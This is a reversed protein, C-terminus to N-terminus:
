TKQIIIEEPKHTLMTISGKYIFKCYNNNCAQMAYFVHMKNWAITSHCIYTYKGFQVHIEFM